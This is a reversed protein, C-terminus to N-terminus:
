RRLRALLQRAAAFDPHFRLVRLLTAESGKRDGSEYQAVALNMGPGALAPYRAFVDKWLEMARQSQGSETLYIGLNAAATPHQPDLRLVREYLSAAKEGKGLSDYFQALQALVVADESNASKELLALARPIWASDTLALSAYALALDRESTPGSFFPRLDRVNSSPSPATPRRPISHLTFAVHEGERSQAKPM